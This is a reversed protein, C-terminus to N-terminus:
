NIEIEVIRFSSDWYRGQSNNEQLTEMGEEASKKSTYLYNSWLAPDKFFGETNVTFDGKRIYSEQYGRPYWINLSNPVITGEVAYRKM